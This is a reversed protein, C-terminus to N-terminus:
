AFIDADDTTPPGYQLDNLRCYITASFVAYVVIQFLAILLELVFLLAYPLSAMQLLAVVAGGCIETMLSIVLLAGMAPWFYPKILAASRSIARTGIEEFTIVPLACCIFTSVIMVVAVAVIAGLSPVVAIFMVVPIMAGMLVLISVILVGLAAFFRTRALSFAAAVHIGSGYRDDFVAKTIAVMFFAYFSLLLAGGVAAATLIAQMASASTLTDTSGAADIAGLMDFGLMMLIAVVAAVPVWPLVAILMTKHFNQFVFRLTDNLVGGVGFPPLVPNPSQPTPDTM